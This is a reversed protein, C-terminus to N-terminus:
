SVRLVPKKAENMQQAVRHQTMTAGKKENPLIHVMKHIELGSQPHDALDM